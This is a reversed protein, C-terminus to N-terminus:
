LKEKARVIRRENKIISTVWPLQRCGNKIRTTKVPAHVDLIATLRTNFQSIFTDQLHSNLLSTSLNTVYYSNYLVLLPNIFAEHLDNCFSELNIKRFPRNTITYSSSNINEICKRINFFVACHDSLGDRLSVNTVTTFSSRTLILDLIGGKSHTSQQVHQRLNYVSMLPALCAHLSEPDTYGLNFDGLVIIENFKNLESLLLFL